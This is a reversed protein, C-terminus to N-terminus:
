RQKEAIRGLERRFTLFADILRTTDEFSGAARIYESPALIPAIAEERQAQALALEVSRVNLVLAIRAVDRIVLAAAVALEEETTREDDSM